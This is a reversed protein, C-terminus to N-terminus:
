KRLDVRDKEELWDDGDINIIKGGVSIYGREYGVFTRPLVNPDEATCIVMFSNCGSKIQDVHRLRERYGPHSQNNIFKAKHTVRYYHKDYIIALEDKWVRLYIDGKSSEAGWSWRQNKLPADLSQFLSTINKM